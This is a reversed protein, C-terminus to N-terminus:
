KTERYKALLMPFATESWFQADVQGSSMGGRAYREIFIPTKDKISKGTLQEYTQELLFLIEEDTDPYARDGLVDKMEKWLYPDGRLGWRSPEIEFIQALTKQPSM